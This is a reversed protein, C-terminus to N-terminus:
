KCRSCCKLAAAGSQGCYSCHTKLIHELNKKNNCIRGIRDLPAEGSNLGIGHGISRLLANRVDNASSSQM